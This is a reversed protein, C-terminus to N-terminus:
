WIRSAACAPHLEIDSNVMRVPSPDVHPLQKGSASAIMASTRALRSNGNGTSALAAHDSTEVRVGIMKAPNERAQNKMLVPRTPM